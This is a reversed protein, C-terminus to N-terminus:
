STSHIQPNKVKVTCCGVVQTSVMDGSTVILLAGPCVLGVVTSLAVKWTINLSGILIDVKLLESILRDPVLPLM